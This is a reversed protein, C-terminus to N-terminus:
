SDFDLERYNCYQSFPDHDQNMMSDEDGATDCGCTKLGSEKDRLIYEECDPCVKPTYKKKGNAM